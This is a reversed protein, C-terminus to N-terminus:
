PALAMTVAGAVIIAAGAIRQKAARENLFLAGLAVGIVLATERFPGVYSVQSDQLVFLVLAYAVFQLLGGAVIASREKRWATAIAERGYFTWTVPLLGITGATSLLYVYLLPNVEDAGRADITSYTAITLGTLVAAEIGAPRLRAGALGTSGLVAIGAVILVVALVAVVSMEEDLFVIGLVPIFAVGTGRAVPYVVSLDGVTYGRALALFYALHVLWSTGLLAWGTSSPPERLFLAVALPLLAANVALAMWWTFVLPAVSRKTLFNWGAHAFASLLVLGIAAGSV